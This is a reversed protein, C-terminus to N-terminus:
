EKTGRKISSLDRITQRSTEEQLRTLDRPSNGKVVSKKRISLAKGVRHSMQDEQATMDEEIVKPYL